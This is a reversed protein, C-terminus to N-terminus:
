TAYIPFVESLYQKQINLNWDLGVCEPQREFLDDTLEETEAIPSLYWIPSIHFGLSECLGYIKPIIKRAARRLLSSM